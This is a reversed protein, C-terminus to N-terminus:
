SQPQPSRFVVPSQSPKRTKPSALAADLFADLRQRKEANATATNGQIETLMAESISCTGGAIHKGTSTEVIQQAAAPMTLFAVGYFVVVAMWAHM